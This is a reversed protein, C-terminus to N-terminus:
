SIKWQKEQGELTIDGFNNYQVVRITKLKMLELMALFIVIIEIKDKAKKFFDNFKIKKYKILARQIEDMKDEIKYEDYDIDKPIIGRKNFKKEYTNTIKKFSHMLNELTINKFLVEDNDIDDIIEPAKFFICNNSEISKLKEAFEKYKKYEVLKEVLEQRPDIDDSPEDEFDKKKPLLMQSKIELLTAAMVLFESAINLDLEEMKKLYDIYQNTIEAIPIDYIDIESKKILHLLLDLPGEFADIKVNISM